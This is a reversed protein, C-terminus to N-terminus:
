LANATWLCLEPADPGARLVRRARAVSPAQLATTRQARAKRTWINQREMIGRCRNAGSKTIM